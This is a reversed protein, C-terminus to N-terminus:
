LATRGTSIPGNARGSTVSPLPSIASRRSPSHWRDATRRRLLRALFSTGPFRVTLKEPDAVRVPWSRVQFWPARAAAAGPHSRSRAGPIGRDGSLSPAADAFAKGSARLGAVWDLFAGIRDLARTEM